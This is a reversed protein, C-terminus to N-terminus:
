SVMFRMRFVGNEDTWVYVLLLHKWFEESQLASETVTKVPYTHISPWVASSFIEPAEKANWHEAM